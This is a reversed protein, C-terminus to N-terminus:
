KIVANVIKHSIEDIHITSDNLQIVAKLVGIENPLVTLTNSTVTTLVQERYYINAFICITGVKKSLNQVTVQLCPFSDNETKIIIEEITQFNKACLTSVGAWVLGGGIGAVIYWGMVLFYLAIISGIVIFLYATTKKM